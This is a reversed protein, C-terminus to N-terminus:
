GDEPQLRDEIEWVHDLAHWATRRVFYRPPWRKGGRPGRAPIEGRASAALTDLITQRTHELVEEPDTTEPLKLKGGLASLYGTEAGQVHEVIKELDRGGGRPGKRLPRSVAAQAAADFAQWCAALLATLRQLDAATVPRTDHAPVADPAGFETTASGELREVVNFALPAAPAQFDLGATQLVQAYRPGYAFLAQLASEEDRGSRCWGPWDLAGAFVRKKGLELYVDIKESSQTM